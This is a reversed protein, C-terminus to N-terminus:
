YNFASSLSGPIPVLFGSYQKHFLQAFITNTVLDFGFSHYLPFSSIVFAIPKTEKLYIHFVHNLKTMEWWTNFFVSQYKQNLFIESQTLQCHIVEQWSNANTNWGASGEDSSNSRWNTPEQKAATGRSIWNNFYQFLDDDRDSKWRSPHWKVEYHNFYYCKTYGGSGMENDNPDKRNGGELWKVCWSNEAKSPKYFIFNIMSCM